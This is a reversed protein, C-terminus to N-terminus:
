IDVQLIKWATGIAALWFAVSLTTVVYGAFSSTLPDFYGPQMVNLLLVLGMPFLALVWLQAKGEATKTRVVGELRDMERLSNATTELIQPLDGGVKRGVLLASLAIDLPRSEVREALAVIADDLTTGLKLEKGLQQLENQLPAATIPELSLLADSLSPTSKLAGSLAGLFGPVQADIQQTRKQTESQIYFRPGFAIAVALLGAWVAPLVGFVAALLAVMLAVAQGILISQTRDFIYLRRLADDLFQSYRRVLQRPYSGSSQLSLVLASVSIAVLVPLGFRMLENM